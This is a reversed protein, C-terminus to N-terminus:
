VKDSKSFYQVMPLMIARQGGREPFCYDDKSYFCAHERFM